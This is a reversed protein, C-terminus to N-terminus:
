GTEEGLVERKYSGDSKVVEFELGLKENRIHVTNDDQSGQGFLTRFESGIVDTPSSLIEDREDTLTDDAEYWTLTSQGFGSENEEFEKHDLVYPKSNDRQTEFINKSVAETPTPSDAVAKASDADTYESQVIKHYATRMNPERPDGDALPPEPVLDKLADQPSAYPKKVVSYFEKMKATEQEVREDFAEELRKELLKYGVFFGVGAGVVAVGAMKISQNM